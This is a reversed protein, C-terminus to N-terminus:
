MISANGSILCWRWVREVNEQELHKLLESPSKRIPSPFPSRINESDDIILAIIAWDGLGYEGQLNEEREWKQRYTEITGWCPSIKIVVSNPFIITSGFSIQTTWTLDMNKKDGEGTKVCILVVIDAGSMRNVTNLFSYRPM